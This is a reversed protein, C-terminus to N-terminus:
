LKNMCPDCMVLFVAEPRLTMFSKITAINRILYHSNRAIRVLRTYHKHALGYGVRTLCREPAGCYLLGKVYVLSSLIALSL